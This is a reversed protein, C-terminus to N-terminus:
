RVFPSSGHSIYVNHSRECNQLEDYESDLDPPSASLVSDRRRGDRSVLNELSVEPDLLIGDLLQQYKQGSQV